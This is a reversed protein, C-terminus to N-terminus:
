SILYEKGHYIDTFRSLLDIKEKVRTGIIIRKRITQACLRLFAKGLYKKDTGTPFSSLIEGFINEMMEPMIADDFLVGILFRGVVLFARDFAVGYEESLTISFNFKRIREPQIVKITGDGYVAKEIDKTTIPMFRYRYSSLYNFYELYQVFTIKKQEYLVSILAFSSCYEPAKKNTEVENYKLYLYDETLVYIKDKQAM